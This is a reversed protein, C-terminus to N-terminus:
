RPLTFCFNKVGRFNKRKRTIHPCLFFFSEESKLLNEVESEKYMEGFYNLLIELTESCNEGFICNRVCVYPVLEKHNENSLTEQIFELYISFKEKTAHEAFSDTLLKASNRSAAFIKFIEHSTFKNKMVNLVLKLTKKTFNHKTALINMLKSEDSNNCNLFFNQFERPTFFESLIKIIPKLFSDFSYVEVTYFSDSKLVFEESFEDDTVYAKVIKIIKEATEKHDIKLIAKMLYKDACYQMVKKLPFREQIWKFLELIRGDEDVKRKQDIFFTLFQTFVNEETMLDEDSEVAKMEIVIEFRINLMYRLYKEAFESTMPSLRYENSTRNFQYFVRGLMYMEPVLKSMEEEDLTEKAISFIRM